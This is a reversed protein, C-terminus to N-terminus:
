KMIGPFDDISDPIENVWSSLDADTKGLTRRLLDIKPALKKLGLFRKIITM